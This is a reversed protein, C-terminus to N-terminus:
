LAEKELEAKKIVVLALLAGVLNAVLDLATNEYGGVGNESALLTAMFEFVENLAGAGMGAMAIVLLLRSTKRADKKLFPALLVYMLYTAVGFGIMHVLQDYKFINYPEGVMPILIKDYLREGAVSLGGGAMHLFAWLTLGWLVGNPYNVKNDTFFVLLGLFLIIGVYILFEYNQSSLFFLSFGGLFVALAIIIPQHRKKIKIEM